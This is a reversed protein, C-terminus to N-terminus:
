RDFASRETTLSSAAVLRNCDFRGAMLCDEIRSSAALHHILFLCAAVLALTVALGALSATQREAEADPETRSRDGGM